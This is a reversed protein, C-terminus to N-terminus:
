DWECIYSYSDTVQCYPSSRWYNSPSNGSDGQDDWTGAIEMGPFFQMLAYHGGGSGNPQTKSWGAYDWKEGTVWRWHGETNTAGIWCYKPSLDGVLSICFDNEEMSTITVLHGGMKKCREDAETWTVGEDFFQYYHGDHRVKGDDKGFLTHLIVDIISTTNEAAYVPMQLSSMALIAALILTIFTKRKKM